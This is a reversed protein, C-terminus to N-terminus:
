DITIIYGSLLLPAIFSYLDELMEVENNLISILKLVVSGIKSFDKMIRKDPLVTVFEKLTSHRVGKHISGASVNKTYEKIESSSLVSYLYESTVKERSGRISFVSENINWNTPLESIYYTVGVPEISTFLTDGVKLDSRNNIIVLARDDVRDCSSNFLLLDDKINKITIYYNSGAGLSFHSRPNLGTNISEVIEGLKTAKWNIPLNRGLEPSFTVDGGNQIYSHGSSDPFNLDIFWHRYISRMLERSNLVKQQNVKIKGEVGDLVDAIRIQETKDIVPLLIENFTWVPLQKQVSGSVLNSVQQQFLQSRFFHKLYRANYDDGCRIILMGSNIRVNEYEVSEDFIDVNGVTGRTNMVLDNLSLKGKGLLEDKEKTIFETKSFKFGSSSLNSSSLFLCYGDETLDGKSPYQNGRDGDILKISTKGLSIFSNSRM